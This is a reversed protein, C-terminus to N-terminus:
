VEGSKDRQSFHILASVFSELSSRNLAFYLSPELLELEGLYIEGSDEVIDVRAYLLNEPVLKLVRLGLELDSARPAVESVSGGHALQVLFDGAKAKKLVSHSFCKNFYIYSREGNDVVGKLFPQLLMPSKLLHRDLFDQHHRADPADFRITAHGDASITPKLVCSEWGSEACLKELDVPADIWQSPITPIGAQAFRRLYNKNLNWKLTSVSNFVRVGKEELKELWASFATLDLFYDWTSRIVVCDFETWDVQPDNWVAPRVQIGHRALEPVLLLDDAVGRPYKACTAFACIM